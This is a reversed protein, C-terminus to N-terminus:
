KIKTSGCKMTSGNWAFLSKKQGSKLTVELYKRPIEDATCESKGECLQWAQASAIQNKSVKEGYGAMIQSIDSIDTNPIPLRHAYARQTKGSISILATNDSYITVATNAFTEIKKPGHYIMLPSCHHAPAAKKAMATSGLVGVLAFLILHFKM